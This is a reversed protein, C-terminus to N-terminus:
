IHGGFEHRSAGSVQLSRRRFSEVFREQERSTSKVVGTTGIYAKIVHVNCKSGRLHEANTPITLMYKEIKLRTINKSIGHVGTRSCSINHLVVCRRDVWDYYFLM